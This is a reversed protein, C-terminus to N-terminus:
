EILYCDAAYRDIIESVHDFLDTGVGLTGDMLSSAILVVTRAKGRCLSTRMAERLLFDLIEADERERVEVAVSIQRSAFLWDCLMLVACFAGFLALTLFVIQLFLM